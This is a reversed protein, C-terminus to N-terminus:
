SQDPHMQKGKRADCEQKQFPLSLISPVAFLFCVFTHWIPLTPNPRFAFAFHEICDFKVPSFTAYPTRKETNAHDRLRVNKKTYYPYDFAPAPNPRSITQLYDEQAYMSKEHIKEFDVPPSTVHNELVHSGRPFKGCCWLSIEQTTEGGLKLQWPCEHM